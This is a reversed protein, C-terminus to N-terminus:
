VEFLGRLSDVGIICDDASGAHGLLSDMDDFAMRAAAPPPPLPPDPRLAPPICSVVACGGEQWSSSQRGWWASCAADEGRGGGVRGSHGGGGLRWEGEGGGVLQKELEQIDNDLSRTEEEDEGGSGGASAELPALGPLWGGGGGQADEGEGDGRAAASAAAAQLRQHSAVAAVLQGAAEEEGEEEGEAGAAAAAAAAAVGADMSGEQGHGRVLGEPSHSLRALESAASHSMSPAAPLTMGGGGGSGQLQQWLMSGGFAAPFAGPALFSAFPDAVVAAAAAAAAATTAYQTELSAHRHLSSGQHPLLCSGPESLSRLGGQSHGM